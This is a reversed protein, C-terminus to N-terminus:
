DGSDFGFVLRMDPDTIGIGSFAAAVRGQAAALDQRAQDAIGALRALEDAAQQDTLETWGDPLPQTDTVPVGELLDGTDTLATVFKIPTSLQVVSAPGVGNGGNNGGRNGKNNGNDTM